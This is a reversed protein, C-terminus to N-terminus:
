MASITNLHTKSVVVSNRAIHYDREPPAPISDATGVLSKDRRTFPVSSVARKHPVRSTAAQSLPLGVAGVVGSGAGDGRLERGFAPPSGVM